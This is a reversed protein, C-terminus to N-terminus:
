LKDKFSLQLDGERLLRELLVSFVPFLVVFVLTDLAALFIARETLSFVPYLHWGLAILFTILFRSLLNDTLRRILLVGTAIAVLLLSRVGLLRVTLFDYFIGGIFATWLANNRRDAWCLVLVIILLLNPFLDTFVPIFTTQFLVVFFLIAALFLQYLM